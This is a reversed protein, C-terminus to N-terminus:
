YTLTVRKEALHAIPITRSKPGGQPLCKVTADVSQGQHLTLLIPALDKPGRLPVGALETLIDGERLGARFAASERGVDALLVGEAAGERRGIRRVRIAENVPQLLAESDAPTIPEERADLAELFASLIRYHQRFRAPDIRSGDDAPSNIVSLYPASLSHITVSPIGARTFNFADSLFGFLVQQETPVGVREGARNFAAELDDASTNAWTRLTDVGLCELNIMAKIRRGGSRVAQQVFARSGHLGQEECGFGVFVFTHRPARDKMRGYLAALMVCSSWNDIVGPSGPMTDTHAGVVIVSNQAEGGELNLLVNEQAEGNWTFPQAEIANRSAGAACLIEKLRARRAANRAPASAVALLIADPNPSAPMPDAGTAPQASLLVITAAFLIRRM